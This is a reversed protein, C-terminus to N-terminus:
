GLRGGPPIGSHSSSIKAIKPMGPMNAPKIAPPPFTWSGDIGTMIAVFEISYPAIM